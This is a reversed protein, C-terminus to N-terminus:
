ELHGEIGELWNKLRIVRSPLDESGESWSCTLGIHHMQYLIGDAITSYDQPPSQYGPTDNLMAMLEEMATENIYRVDKRRDIVVQRNPYIIITRTVGSFGGESRFSLTGAPDFFNIRDSM